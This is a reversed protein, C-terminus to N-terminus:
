WVGVVYGCWWWDDYWSPGLTCASFQIITYRSSYTRDYLEPCDRYFHGSMGCEYCRMNPNFFRRGLGRTRPRAHTVRIRTGCLMMGDTGKLAAMANSKHKFVAFGFCPPSNAMWVEKLSGFEEFLRQIDSRKVNESIDAIHLRYTSECSRSRSRSRSYESECESYSEEVPPAGGRSRSRYHRSRMIERDREKRRHYKKFDGRRNRDIARSREGSQKNVVSRVFRM